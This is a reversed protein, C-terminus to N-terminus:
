PYAMIMTARSIEHLYLIICQQSTRQMDCLQWQTGALGTRDDHWSGVGTRSPACGRPTMEKHGPTADVEATKKARHM